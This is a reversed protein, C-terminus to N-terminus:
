FSAHSAAFLVARSPLGHVEEGALQEHGLRLVALSAMHFEVRSHFSHQLHDLRCRSTTANVSVHFAWTVPEFGCDLFSADRVESPVTEPVHESRPEDHVSEQGYRLECTV